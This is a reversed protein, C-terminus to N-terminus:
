WLEPRTGAQGIKFACANKAQLPIETNERRTWM